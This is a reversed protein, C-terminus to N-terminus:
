WFPQLRRFRRWSREIAARAGGAGAAVFGCVAGAAFGRGGAHGLEAILAAAVTGDNLHGLWEQLATLRRIFRRAERRPYLPAFIEVGYRLRKARLRLGHLTAEPLESIDDGHAALHRLRRTLARAAYEHLSADLAEAADAREWPRAAALAALTIGLRRFEASALV